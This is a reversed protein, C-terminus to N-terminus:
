CQKGCLQETGSDRMKSGLMGAGDWEDDVIPVPHGSALRGDKESSRSVISFQQITPEEV